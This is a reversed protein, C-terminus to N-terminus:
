KARAVITLPERSDGVRSLSYTKSSLLEKLAAEVHPRVLEFSADDNRLYLRDPFRFLIEQTGFSGPTDLGAKDVLQAAKLARSLGDQVLPTGEPLDRKRSYLLGPRGEGQDLAYDSAHGVLLVGIGQPVHTYDAVDFVMEGLADEQIWKHFLPIFPELSKELGAEAYLKIQVKRADM